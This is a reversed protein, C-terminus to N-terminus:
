SNWKKKYHMDFTAFSQWNSSKVSLTANLKIVNKTNWPKYFSGKAIDSTNKHLTLSTNNTGQLESAVNQNEYSVEMCKMSAQLIQYCKQFNPDYARLAYLSSFLNTKM